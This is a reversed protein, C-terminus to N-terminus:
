AMLLKHVFRMCKRVTWSAISEYRRPLQLTVRAGHETLKLVDDSPQIDIQFVPDIPEGTNPNVLIEGGGLYTLAVHDFVHEAAPKVSVITGTYTDISRGPIRFEVETGSEKLISGLQDENVWTRLLPEGNVVVALRSGANLFRGRSTATIINAVKGDDPASVTLLNVRRQIESLQQQQETVVAHQRAAQAPDTRQLVEYRLTAAKLSAEALGLQDQLRENQLQVLPTNATVIDGSRVLAKDFEGPSEVNIFHEVEAGVLGRTVVGFPVPVVCSLLPLGILVIGAVLRARGRVPETERSKLLYNAMKYIGAGVTTVVHFAALGLGILPFKNAVVIAISIVLFFKYVTASVGYLILMGKTTASDDTTPPQIGLFTSVLMRKIQSDARPRLNQIGILESLIFYGDFKMLPNANFLITILGAMIVLHYACSSLMPSSSFAWIFVGPIFVLSEFFMGGCMVVLRKYREPFRWATSADVYAAPTGAILISGMEPVFGGFVKCAYGHGLEHWIKLAVFSLWLFPLNKTALIGNLPQVLDSFRIVIVSGAAAMALLWVMLFTKTFLWSVRHVTRTLFRDPNVLPIQMFLVGLLRSRRQATKMRLHQEYLKAGNQSPLVILGLGSFSTLLDYYLQEEDDHFEQKAVLQQFNEGLTLQPNLSALTRYQFVSLRHSRFSVPDQVVYVPKGQHVQRSVLLDSRLTVRLGRAQALPDPAAQSQPQPQAM